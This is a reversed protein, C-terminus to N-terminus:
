LENEIYSFINDVDSTDFGHKEAFAEIDEGTMETYNIFRKLIARDQEDFVHGDRYAM